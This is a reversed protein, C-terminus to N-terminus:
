KSPKNQEIIRDLSKRLSVSARGERAQKPKRKRVLTTPVFDLLFLAKEIVGAALTEYTVTEDGAKQQKQQLFWKKIQLLSFINMLYQFIIFLTIYEYGSAM